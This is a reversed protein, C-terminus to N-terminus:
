RNCCPQSRGRDGLQGGTQVRQNTGHRFPQFSDDIEGLPVQLVCDEPHQTRDAREDDIVGRRRDGVDPAGDELENKDKQGHVVQELIRPVSTSRTRV